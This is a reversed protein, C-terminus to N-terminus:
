TDMCDNNNEEQKNKIKMRFIINGKEDVEKALDQEVSDIPVDVVRSM